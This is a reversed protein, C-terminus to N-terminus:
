ESDSITREKAAGEELQAARTGAADFIRCWLVWFGNIDGDRLFGQFDSASNDLMADDWVKGQM